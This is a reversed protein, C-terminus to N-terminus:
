SGEAPITSLSGSGLLIDVIAFLETSLEWGLTLADVNRHFRFLHESRAEPNDPVRVIISWVSDKLLEMMAWSTSGFDIYHQICDRYKKTKALFNNNSVELRRRLDAPLTECHNLTRTFSNPCGSKNGWKNWLPYRLTDYGRVIATVLSEFEFYPEEPTTVVREADPKHSLSSYHLCQDTYWQALAKCHYLVAGMIFSLSRSINRDLESRYIDLLRGQTAPLVMSVRSNGCPGLVVVPRLQFESQVASPSDVSISSSASRHRWANGNEKVLSVGREFLVTDFEQWPFM